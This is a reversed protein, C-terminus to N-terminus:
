SNKEPHYVLGLENPKMSVNEKVLHALREIDKVKQGTYTDIFTQVVDQEWNRSDFKRYSLMEAPYCEERTIMNLLVAM